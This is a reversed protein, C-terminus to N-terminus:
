DYVVNRARRRTARFEGKTHKRIDVILANANKARVWDEVAREEEEQVLVVVVVVVVV